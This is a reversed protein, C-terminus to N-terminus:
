YLTEQSIEQGRGEQREHSNRGNRTEKSIAKEKQCEICTCESLIADGGVCSLDLCFGSCDIPTNCATCVPFPGHM